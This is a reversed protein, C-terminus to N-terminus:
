YTNELLTDKRRRFFCCPLISRYLTNKRLLDVLALNRLVVPLVAMRGNDDSIFSFARANVSIRPKISPFSGSSACLVFNWLRFEISRPITKPLQVLKSIM